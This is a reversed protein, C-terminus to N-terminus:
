AEHWPDGGEKGSVLLTSCVPFSVSCSQTGKCSKILLKLAARGEWARFLWTIVAQQLGCSHSIFIMSYWPVHISLRWKNWILGDELCVEPKSSLLVQITLEAPSLKPCPSITKRLMEWGQHSAHFWPCCHSSALSLKIPNTNPHEPSGRWHRWHWLQLEMLALLVLTKRWFSVCEPFAETFHSLLRVICPFSCAFLYHWLVSFLPTDLFQM